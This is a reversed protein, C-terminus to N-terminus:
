LARRSRSRDASGRPAPVRSEALALPRHEHDLLVLSGMVVVQPQLRRAHQLAPRYGLARWRGTRRATPGRSRPGDAPTRRSRPFGDPLWELGLPRGGTDAVVTVTGDEPRLRLVRGDAVGTLVSGTSADVLVDEPGEGAVDFVRLDPLPIESTDRRARVPARPPSWPVPRISPRGVGRDHRYQVGDCWSWRGQFGLRRRGSMGCTAARQAAFPSVWAVHGLSRRAEESPSVPADHGLLRSGGEPGVRIQQPHKITVRGRPFSLATGQACRPTSHAASVM